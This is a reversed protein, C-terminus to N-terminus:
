KIKSHKNKNKKNEVTAIPETKIVIETKVDETNEVTAIHETESVLGRSILVSAISESINACTGVDRKDFKIAIYCKM